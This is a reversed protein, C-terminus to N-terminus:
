AAPKRRKKKVTAIRPPPPAPKPHEAAYQARIQATAMFGGLLVGVGLMLPREFTVRIPAFQPEALVEACVPSPNAMHTLGIVLAHLLVLFQMGGGPGLFPVAAELARAAVTSRELFLTKYRITSERDIGHEIVPHLVALLGMLMQRDLISKCIRTSIERLDTVGTVTATVDAFWKAFEVDVLALFLEEKTEFYGYLTSKGLGAARAVADMTIDAFATSEAIERAVDLIM